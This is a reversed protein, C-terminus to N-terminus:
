PTPGNMALLVSGMATRVEELKERDGTLPRNEVDLTFRGDGDTEVTLVTDGQRVEFRPM